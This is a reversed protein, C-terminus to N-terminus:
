ATKIARTVRQISLLRGCVVDRLLSAQAGAWIQIRLKDRARVGRTSHLVMAQELRSVVEARQCLLTVASVAVRIRVGIIM